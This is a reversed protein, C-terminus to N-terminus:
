SWIGRVFHSSDALGRPDTGSSAPTPRAAQSSPNLTGPSSSQVDMTSSTTPQPDLPAIPDPQPRSSTFPDRIKAPLPEPRLLDSSLMESPGVSLARRSYRQRKAPRAKERSSGMDHSAMHAELQSSSTGLEARNKQRSAAIEFVELKKTLDDLNDSANTVQGIKRLANDFREVEEEEEEGLVDGLNELDRSLRAVKNTLSDAKWIDYTFTSEILDAQIKLRSCTGNEM